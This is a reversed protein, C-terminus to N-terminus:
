KEQRKRGKHGRFTNAFPITSFTVSGQWANTSTTLKKQTITVSPKSNKQKKISREKKRGRNANMWNLELPPNELQPSKSMRGKVGSGEGGGTFV